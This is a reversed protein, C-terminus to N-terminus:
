TRLNVFDLDVGTDKRIKAAKIKNFAKGSLWFELVYNFFYDDENEFSELILEVQQKLEFDNKALDKLLDLHKDVPKNISSTYGTASFVSLGPISKVIQNSGSTTLNLTSVNSSIRPMPVLNLEGLENNGGNLLNTSSSTLLKDMNNFNLMNAMKYRIGSNNTLFELSNSDFGKRKSLYYLEDLKDFIKTKNQFISLRELLEVLKTNNKSHITSAFRKITFNM